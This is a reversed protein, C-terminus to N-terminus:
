KLRSNIIERIADIEEYTNDNSKVFKKAIKYTFFMNGFFSCIILITGFVIYSLVSLFIGLSLIVLFIFSCILYQQKEKNSDELYSIRSKLYDLQEEKSMSNKEMSDLVNNYVVQSKTENKDNISINISKKKM